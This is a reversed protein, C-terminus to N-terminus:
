QSPNPILRRLHHACHVRHLHTWEERSLNGFFPHRHLPAQHNQYRQIASELQQIAPALQVNSPPNLSETVSFGGDLANSKLVRRLAVRGVLTRMLRHGNVNFGDMSATFSEALHWCTQALSWQGTPTHGKTLERVEPMVDDLNTFILPRPTTM